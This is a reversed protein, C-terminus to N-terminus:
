DVVIKGDIEIHLDRLDKRNSLLRNLLIQIVMSSKCPTVPLEKFSDVYDQPSVGTGYTFISNWESCIEDYRFLCAFTTHIKLIDDINVEPINLSTDVILIEHSKNIIEALSSKLNNMSYSMMNEEKLLFM